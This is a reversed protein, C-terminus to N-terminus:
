NLNRVFYWLLYMLCLYYFEYLLRPSFVSWIFLHQRLALIIFLYLIFPFAVLLVILPLVITQSSQGTCDYTNHIFTLFSLIPGSFTNLTLFFGVAAFNFSNLGIYGAALDISALSNSNGQYFFFQKGIWLHLVCQELLGASKSNQDISFPVSQQIKNCSFLLLSILFINHPKHTLAIVLTSLVVLTGYISKIDFRSIKLKLANFLIPAYNIAAIEIINLWFLTLATGTSDSPKIGAFYVSGNLTRYYYILMCATLTLVNTLINGFDLSTLYALLLSASVFLSNWIRNDEMQLWDGIDPTNLWKDGTQNLRRAILHGCLLVAWKLQNQVLATSNSEPKQTLHKSIFHRSEMVYLMLWITNNLYYWIQHEEEIFSSSFTSVAHFIVGFVLFKQFNTMKCMSKISTVLDINRILILLFNFNSFIVFYIISFLPIGSFSSKTISNGLFNCHLISAIFSFLTTFKLPITIPDIKVKTVFKLAVYLFSTLSCFLGLAICLHDFNVYSDALRNSMEKSSSIYHREASKFYQLRDNEKANLQLFKKHANKADNFQLFFEENEIADNLLTLKALLTQGNYFYCYLKQEMSLVDLLNHILQGSSSAPIPLGLLVSLTASIDIQNYTDNTQICSPGLFILPVNVEAYSSGGHGGSDRMGHDSTVIFLPPEESSQMMHSLALHIHMAVTDMERLKNPVKSSFPGEVHGIHDLGLFHLILLEWDNRKLEVSLKKTINKDGEYFDNVYLSDENELQRLFMNPFMKVWTNDGCFVINRGNDYAQHLLSDMHLESSGLNMVVDIFNPVTGTTMAKIRPMTVTPVDVNLNIMCATRDNIIKNLYKMSTNQQNYLFDTRMADIVMLVTRSVHRRYISKNLPIDDLFTPLDDSEARENSTYSLPFFGYLFLSAGVLIAFVFYSQIWKERLIM